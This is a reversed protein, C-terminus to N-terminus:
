HGRQQCQDLMYTDNAAMLCEYDARSITITCQDVRAQHERPSQNEARFTPALVRFRTKQRSLFTVAELHDVLRECQPRTAFQSAKAREEGVDRLPAGSAQAPARQQTGGCAAVALGALMLLKKM